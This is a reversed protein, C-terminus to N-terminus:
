EVENLQLMRASKAVSQIARTGTWGFTIKSVQGSQHDWLDIPEESPLENM